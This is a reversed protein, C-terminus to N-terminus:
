KLLLLKKVSVFKGAELRYFYLGSALGAGDLTVSKYGATQIEDVLRAVEEGLTNFVRLMVHEDKPLAYEIVTTPNFPNPYNQQLAFQSPMERETPAGFKGLMFVDGHALHAPIANPSVCIEVHSGNGTRHLISVKDLRNGCRVDEVTVTVEDTVSCGNAVVTVTYTTTAVPAAIPSASTPDYLGATPSWSYSEPTINPSITASLQTSALPAYGYYVTVDQGADVTLECTPRCRIGYENGSLTVFPPDFALTGTVEMRYDGVYNGGPSFQVLYGNVWPGAMDPYVAEDTIPLRFTQGNSVSMGGGVIMLHILSSPIEVGSVDVLSLQCELQKWEPRYANGDVGLPFDFRCYLGTGGPNGNLGPSSWVIYGNQAIPGAVPPVLPNNDVTVPLTFSTGNPLPSSYGGLQIDSGFIAENHQDVLTVTLTALKWELIYSNGGVGLPLAYRRYLGTTQSQGNIGPDTYVTHGAALQGGIPPLAPNDDVTVPLTLSSGNSLQAGGFEITTAPILNPPNNQDVLTVTLTALKWVLTYSSGGVALALRYLRYLATTQSNGNIGPLTYVQYGAALPGGAGVTV